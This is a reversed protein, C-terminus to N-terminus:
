SMLGEDFLRIWVEVEAKWCEISITKVEIDSIASKLQSYWSVLHNSHCSDRM